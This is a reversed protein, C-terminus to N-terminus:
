EIMGDIFVSIKSIKLGTKDEVTYRIKHSLSDTVAAINTGFLVSIHLTVSLKNDKVSIKVGQRGKIDAKKFFSLLGGKKDANNLAAVGFCKSATYSILAVLYEESIGIKGLYNEMTIMGM